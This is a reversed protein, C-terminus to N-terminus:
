VLKFLSNTPHTKTEKKDDALFGKMQFGTKEAYAFLIDKNVM